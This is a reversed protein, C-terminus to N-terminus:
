VSVTWVGLRKMDLTCLITYHCFFDIVAGNANPTTYNGIYQVVSGITNIGSYLRDSKAASVSTELEISAVFSGVASVAGAAAAQALPTGDGIANNWSNSVNGSAPIKLYTYLSDYASVIAASTNAAGGTGVTLTSMYLQSAIYADNQFDSLAHSSILYEALPEAGADAVQISAQPYLQSDISFQYNTLGNTIRNGLSQRAITFSDNSRHVVLIRELSSVAVGLTATVTSSAAMTTQVNTYSPCLIRYVGDTMADIQAQASPSLECIQSVLQMGDLTYNTPATTAVFANTPSEFTIRIRISDLSFLPVLKKQMAFPTLILPLCFTRGNTDLYEGLTGNGNLGALVRGCGARYGISADTELLTTALVNYNNITAIQSGSSFLEIRNILGYAGGKDFNAVAQPTLKFKLYLQSFDMYSGALNSPLMFETQFGLGTVILQSPGVPNIKSRFNRSAVARRKINNFDLAESMADPTVEAM